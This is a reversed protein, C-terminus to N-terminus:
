QDRKVLRVPPTYVKRGRIIYWIASLLMIGGFMASSWNMTTLDPKAALPFFCFVFLPVLFIMAVLNIWLGAKGLSWRAVPLPERRLRKSLVCGISLIYSALLASLTMSLIANLAVASGLNILSLGVGAVLSVLLANLPIPLSPNVQRLFASFPFGNDRSFAWIQRSATAVEAIVASVLVAIIIASMTSAAAKSKTISLFYPIM